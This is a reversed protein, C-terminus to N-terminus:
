YRFGFGAGLSTSLSPFLRDDTLFRDLDLRVGFCLASRGGGLQVVDFLAELFGGVFVASASGRFAAGGEGGLRLRVRDGLQSQLALDGAAELFYDKPLVSYRVRGGLTPGFGAFSLGVNLGGGGGFAQFGPVRDTAEVSTRWGGSALADFTLAPGASASGSGALLLLLALVAASGFRM